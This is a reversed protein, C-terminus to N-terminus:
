KDVVKEIIHEAWVDGFEFCKGGFRPLRYHKNMLEIVKKSEKNTLWKRSGKYVIVPLGSEECVCGYFDIDDWENKM